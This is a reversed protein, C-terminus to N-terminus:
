IGLVEFDFEKYPTISLPHAKLLVRLTDSTPIFPYDSPSEHIVPVGEPTFLLYQRTRPSKEIAIMYQDQVLGIGRVTHKIKVRFPGQNATIANLLANQAEQLSQRTTDTLSLTDSIETPNANKIADRLTSGSVGDGVQFRTESALQAVSPVDPNGKQQPIETM